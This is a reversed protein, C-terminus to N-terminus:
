GVNSTSFVTCFPIIGAFRNEKKLCITQGDSSILRFNATEGNSGFNCFYHLYPRLFNFTIFFINAGSLFFFLALRTLNSSIDVMSFLAHQRFFNDIKLWIMATKWRCLYRFTSGFTQTGHTAVIKVFM